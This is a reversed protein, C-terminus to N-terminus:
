PTDEQIFISQNGIGGPGSYVGVGPTSVGGVGQISVGGISQGVGSIAVNSSVVQISGLGVSISDIFDFNSDSYDIFPAIGQYPVQVSKNINEITFYQFFPVMDIEYLKLNDMIVSSQSSGYLGGGKFNMSLYRKNYFYEVKKVDPTLLHNVNSYIPLYKTPYTTPTPEYGIPSINRIVKNINDFSIIPEIFLDNSIENIYEYYYTTNVSYTLVDFEIVTYRQKEIEFISRNPTGRIISETPPNTIDLVGGGGVFEVKLEKGTIPEEGVDITRSFTISSVSSSSYTWGKNIFMAAEPGTPGFYEEFSSADGIYDNYIKYKVGLRYDRYTTSFSDRFKSDSSLVDNTPYGYLNNISYPNRSLSNILSQPKGINIASTNYYNTDLWSNYIFVAASDDSQVSTVRSINKSDFDFNQVVGSSITTSVTGSELTSNQGWNLDTVIHYENVVSTVSATGDYEPNITKDTKNITLIDGTALKHKESFTLGVKGGSSWLTDVFNTTHYESYFHGGDFVGDVWHTDYMETILPYGKFIGYNWIGKFYGNLFGGSLWVNKTVLIRHNSSDKEIRRLPFNNILEVVISDTSKSIITFYSKILKRNENVDIAVINGISVKDGVEFALASSEPGSIIFRWIKSKEYDFFRGIEYFEHVNEDYRWGSNWVGNEWIGAKFKGNGLKSFIQNITLSFTANVSNGIGVYASYTAGTLGIPVLTTPDSYTGYNTTLYQRNNGPHYAGEVKINSLIMSYSGVGTLTTKSAVFYLYQGGQLGFFYSYTSGSQTMTALLVSNSPQTTVSADSSPLSPSLYISVGDSYTGGIKQYDFYLNFFQYGIFRSIYNNQRYGSTAGKFGYPGGAPQINNDVIQRDNWLFLNNTSDYHWGLSDSANIDLLSVGPVIPSPSFSEKNVKFWSFGQISWKLENIKVDYIRPPASVSSWTGFLGNANYTLYTTTTTNRQPSSYFYNYGTLGRFTGKSTLYEFKETAFTVSFTTTNFTHRAYTSIQYTKDSYFTNSVDRYDLWHMAAKEAVTSASIGMGTGSMIWYPKQNFTSGYGQSVWTM